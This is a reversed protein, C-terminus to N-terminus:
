GKIWSPATPRRIPRGGVTGGAGAGKTGSANGRRGLADIRMANFARLSRELVKGDLHRVIFTLRSRHDESPWAELHVPPHVLHQVSHLVVPSSVGTVQLIGKVRLVDEGHRHLLMTLWIDFATWDLPEDCVFSVSHVGVPAMTPMGHAHGGQPEGWHAGSRGGWAMSGADPSPARALCSGVAPAPNGTQLDLVMVPAWPNLAEITRQLTELTEPNALDAKTILLTDAAVVQKLAQPFEALTRLGLVGDVTTITGTVELSAAAPAAAHLTVLVPVPDALGSTELVLRSFAPIEGQERQACLHRIAGALDERIACCVCGGALVVIRETTFTILDHDIGVEGFENVLVAADAFAADHVLHNLLTTKGSGLFGTLVTTPIRQSATM